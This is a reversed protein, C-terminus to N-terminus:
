RRPPRPPRPRRPRQPSARRVPAIFLVIGGLFLAGSFAAVPDGHALADVTSVASGGLFFRWGLTERRTM